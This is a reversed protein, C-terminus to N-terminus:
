GVNNMEAVAKVGQTLSTSPLLWPSSKRYKSANVGPAKSNMLLVAGGPTVLEQFYDRVPGPAHRKQVFWGVWLGCGM